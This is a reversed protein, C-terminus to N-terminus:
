SNLTKGFQQAETWAEEKTKGFYKLTPYWYKEAYGDDKGWWEVWQAHREEYNKATGNGHLMMLLEDYPIRHAKQCEKCRWGSYPSFPSPPCEDTITGCVMCKDNM